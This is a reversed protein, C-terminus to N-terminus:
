RAWAEAVVYGWGVVTLVGLWTLHPRREGPRWHWLRPIPLSLHVSTLNERLRLASGFDSSGTRGPCGCRQCPYIFDHLEGGENCEEPEVLSRSQPKSPAETVARELSALQKKSDRISPGLSTLRSLLINYSQPDASKRDRQDISEHTKSSPSPDSSPPSTEQSPPTPAFITSIDTDNAVLEELSQITSDDLHLTQDEESDSNTLILPAKAGRAHNIINQLASKPIPPGTYKLAQQSQPEPHSTGAVPSLHKALETAGPRRAGLNQHHNDEDATPTPMPPGRGGIPLPTDIWGGTVFPTKLNAESSTGNETSLNPTEGITQDVWAGTVVPTKMDKTLKTVQPTQKTRETSDSAEMGPSLSDSSARALRKLIDHSDRREHKSPRFAGEDARNKGIISKETPVPDNSRARHIIVPTDSIVEGIDENTNRFAGSDSTPISPIEDFQSKELWKESARLPSSNEMDLSELSAQKPLTRQLEGDSSRERLAGLRSTTVARRQLKELERGQSSDLASNRIWLPPSESIQLSQGTFEDEVDWERRQDPSPSRQPIAVSKSRSPSVDISSSHESNSPPVEAAAVIWNKIGTDGNRRIQSGTLVDEGSSHRKPTDGTLRGSRSNIRSLWDKEPRAKRGWAKPVNVAPDSSRHSFNGISPSSRLSENSGNQRILNEVTLGVKEGMRAKSFAKPRSKLTSDLRQLNRAYQSSGSDLSSLTTDGNDPRESEGEQDHAINEKNEMDNREQKADTNAPLPSRWLPKAPSPSKRENMRQINAIDLSKSDDGLPPDFDDMDINDISDEQALNEEEVIRQYAEAYGRGPSSESNAPSEVPLKRGRPPSPTKPRTPNQTKRKGSRPAASEALQSHRSKREQQRNKGIPLSASGPRSNEDNTNKTARSASALTNRNLVQRPRARLSEQASTKTPSPSPIYSTNLSDTLFDPPQQLTPATRRSAFLPQDRKLEAANSSQKRKKSPSEPSNSAM